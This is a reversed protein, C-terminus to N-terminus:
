FLILNYMDQPNSGLAQYIQEFIHFRNRDPQTQPIRHHHPQGNFSAAHVVM